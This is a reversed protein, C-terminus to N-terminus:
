GSWRQDAAEALRLDRFSSCSFAFFYLVVVMFVPFNGFFDPMQSILMAYIIPIWLSNNHNIKQIISVLLRLFLCLGPIGMGVLVDLFLNHTHSTTLGSGFVSVTKFAGNGIGTMPHEVTQILAAKWVALRALATSASEPMSLADPPSEAAPFYTNSPEALAYHSGDFILQTLAFQNDILLARNLSTPFWFLSFLWISSYIVTERITILKSACSLVVFILFLMWGNRSAALAGATLLSVTGVGFTWNNIAKHKKLIIGLALGIYMLVGLPNPNGVLSAIRPYYKTLGVPSAFAWVHPIFYELLGILSLFLLFCFILRHYKLPHKKEYPANEQLRHSVVLFWLFALTCILIRINHAIVLEFRDSFVGSFWAWMNFLLLNLAIQRNGKIVKCLDEPCKFILLLSAAVFFIASIKANHFILSIPKITIILILLFALSSRDFGALWDQRRKDKLMM